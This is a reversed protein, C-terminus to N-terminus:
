HRQQHTHEGPIRRVATGSMSLSVWSWYRTSSWALSMPPWKPPNDPVVVTVTLSVSTLSLGGRKVWLSNSLRERQRGCPVLTKWSYVTLLMISFFHQQLLQVRINHYHRGRLLTGFSIGQFCNLRQSDGRMQIGPLNWDMCQYGFRSFSWVTCNNFRTGGGGLWGSVCGDHKSWELKNLGKSIVSAKVENRPRRM